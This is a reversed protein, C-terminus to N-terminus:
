KWCPPACAYETRDVIARNFSKSIIIQNRLNRPWCHTWVQCQKIKNQPKEQFISYKRDFRSVHFFYFASYGLRNLRDINRGHATYTSIGNFRSACTSFYIVWMKFMEQLYNLYSYIIVLAALNFIYFILLQLFLFWCIDARQCFLVVGWVQTFFWYLCLSSLLM